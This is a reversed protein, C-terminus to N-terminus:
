SDINLFGPVCFFIGEVCVVLYEWFRAIHSKFSYPVTLNVSRPNATFSSILIYLCEIWMAVSFREYRACMLSKPNSSRDRFVSNFIYYSLCSGIPDSIQVIVVSYVFSILIDSLFIAVLLLNFLSFWSSLFVDSPPSITFNISHITMDFSHSVLFFFNGFCVAVPM